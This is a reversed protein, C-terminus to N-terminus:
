KEEKKGFMSGTMSSLWKWHFIFHLLILAILIIGGWNHMFSWTGRSVALVTPGSVDAKYYYFLALGSVATIVFFVAMIVDVVYNIKPKM